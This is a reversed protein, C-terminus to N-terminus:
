DVDLRKLCCYFYFVAIFNLYCVNFIISSFLLFFLLFLIASHIATMKHKAAAGNGHIIMMDAVFTSDSCHPHM